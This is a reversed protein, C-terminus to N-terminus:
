DVKKAKKKSYEDRYKLLNPVKIGIENQKTILNIIKNKELVQIYKQFKNGSIGCFRGWTKASYSAGCKEGSGDMQKAIIELIRWWLGYIELGHTDVLTAIREDDWADTMHKFWRM